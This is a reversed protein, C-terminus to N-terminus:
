ASRRTKGSKVLAKIETLRLFGTRNMMPVFVAVGIGVGILAKITAFIRSEQVTLWGSIGFRWIFVAAGMVVLAALLKKGSAFLFSFARTKRHLLWGNLVSIVAFAAVTSAAAGLTGIFPVLGLNLLWKCLLGGLVHVLVRRSVDLSQLIGTTIMALSGFLMTVGFVALIGSGEANEFLMADVAPALIAFGLAAASGFATCVKVAQGSKERVFALDGHKNAKALAPVFALSFSLAAATCLQVLPYGRDYIGMLRMANLPDTQLLPVVTVTDILLCFILMMSSFSYILGDYLLVKGLRSFSISAGQMLFSRHRIMYAILILCSAALGAVSGIAALKGTFYSGFGKVFALWAFGIILGARVSQEFLQSV